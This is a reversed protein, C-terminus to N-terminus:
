RKQFYQGKFDMLNTKQDPIILQKLKGKM